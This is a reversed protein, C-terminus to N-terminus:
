FTYQMAGFGLIRQYILLIGFLFAVYAICKRVFHASRM